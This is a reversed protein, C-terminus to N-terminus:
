LANYSGIQVNQANFRELTETSMLREFQEVCWHERHPPVRLHAMLETSGENLNLTADPRGFDRFDDTIKFGSQRLLERHAEYLATRGEYFDRRFRM